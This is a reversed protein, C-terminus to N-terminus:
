SLRNLVSQLEDLTFPKSLVGNVLGKKMQDPELTLGWGTVLVVPKSPHLDKSRRALDWGSCEPMMLDTMLVDYQGVRMRDEAEARTQATAVSNGLAGLLSRAASLINVDDDVFLINATRTTAAPIPMKLTEQATHPAPPLRIAFRTGYSLDDDNGFIPSTVQIEGGHRSILNFATSLGLGLGDQKTSYFPEFVQKLNESEIGAGNDEIEIRQWGRGDRTTCIYLHLPECLRQAEIANSILSVLAERLDAAPGSVEITERFDIELTGVPSWRPRTIAAVQNILSRVSVISASAEPHAQGRMQRVVGAADSAASQIRQLSALADGQLTSELMQSEMMIVALWNNFDHAIKSSMEGLARAEEARRLQTQTKHLLNLEAQLKAALRANEAATVRLDNYAEQLERRLALQGEASVGLSGAFAFLLVARTGIVTVLDVPLPAYAFWALFVYSAASCSAAVLGGCLGFYITAVGIPFFYLLYFDSATDRILLAALVITIFTCLLAIRGPAASNLTKPEARLALLSLWLTTAVIWAGLLLTPVLPPTRVAITGFLFILWVLASAVFLQLRAGMLRSARLRQDITESSLSIKPTSRIPLAGAQAGM